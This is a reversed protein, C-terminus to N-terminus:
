RPKRLWKRALTHYENSPSTMSIVQQFLQKAKRLDSSEHVLADYYIDRAREELKVLHKQSLEHGPKQRLAESFFKYAKTHEDELAAELGKLYLGNAFYGVLRKRLEGKGRAIREDLALAQPVVALLEAGAKKEHALKIVELLELIERMREAAKRGRLSGEAAEAADIAASIRESRYLEIARRLVPSPAIGPRVPRARGKKASEIDDMLVRAAQLGPTAEIAQSVLISARELEKARMLEKAKRLWAKSRRDEYSRVREAATDSYASEPEITQLLDIAATFEDEEARRAARKLIGWQILEGDVHGFYDRLRPHDPQIAKLAKLVRRADGFRESKVLIVAQAFRTRILEQRQIEAQRDLHQRWGLFALASLGGLLILAACVRLARRAAYRPDISPDLVVSDEGSVLDADGRAALSPADLIEPEPAEGIQVPHAAATSPAENLEVFRLTREGIVVEDGPVLSARDVLREGNLFTGNNSGLDELIYGGGELLVRAHRRSVAIDTLTLLCEEDRGIVIEPQKFAWEMGLDPGGVVILRCGQPAAQEAAEVQARTDPSGDVYDALEGFFQGKDAMATPQHFADLREDVAASGLLGSRDAGGGLSGSESSPRSDSGRVSM